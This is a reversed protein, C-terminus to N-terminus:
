WCVVPPGQFTVPCNAGIVNNMTSSCDNGNYAIVTFQTYCGIDIGFIFYGNQPDVSTSSFLKGNRYLEATVYGVAYGSIYCFKASENSDISAVSNESAFNFSLLLAAILVATFSLSSKM